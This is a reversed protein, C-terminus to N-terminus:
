GAIAYLINGCVAVTHSGRHEQMPPGAEWHKRKLSFRETSLLTKGRNRGGVVYIYATDESFQDVVHEVKQAPRDSCSSDRLHAFLKNRSPFTRQCKSCEM